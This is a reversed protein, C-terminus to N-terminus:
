WIRLIDKILENKVFEREQLIGTINNIKLMEVGNKTAAIIVEMWSLGVDNLAYM